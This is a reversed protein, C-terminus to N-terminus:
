IHILSLEIVSYHALENRITQRKKSRIPFERTKDDKAKAAEAAREDAPNQAEIGIFAKEFAPQHKKDLLGLYDNLHASFGREPDLLPVFSTKGKKDTVQVGLPRNGRRDPHQAIGFELADRGHADYLMGFFAFIKDREWMLSYDNLKSVLALLIRHLAVHDVLRAANAHFDHRIVKLLDSQYKEVNSPLEKKLKEEQTGRKAKKVKAGAFINERLTQFDDFLKKTGAADMATFTEVEDPSIKHKEFLPKLTELDQFRIIQRLGRRTGAFSDDKDDAHDSYVKAFDEPKEYIYNANELQERHETGSFGAAQVQIYLAMLRDMQELMNIAKQDTATPSKTELAVSKKMQHRLLSIEQPPVLYLWTYFQAHWDAQTKLTDDTFKAMANELARPEPDIQQKIGAIFTM